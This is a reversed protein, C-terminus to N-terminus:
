DQVPGEADPARRGLLLLPQEGSQRVGDFNQDRPVAVSKALGEGPDGVEEAHGPLEIERINM